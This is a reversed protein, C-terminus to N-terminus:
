SRGVQTLDHFFRKYEGEFVGGKLRIFSIDHFVSFGELEVKRLTGAELEQAVVAEYLFSIGLDRKLFAKIVNLSEVESVQNFVGIGLNRATLAHELVARTGSGPERVLLYEDVLDEIRHPERAFTHNPACVCVLRESAFVDWAYSSKDFFGEVFACDITGSDLSDLLEETRGSRIAPRIEPHTALYNALPAAVVYEGATLTMGLSLRIQSVQTADVMRECLTAEDHAMVILVSRLMEGAPTLALKKNCYSFLPVGYVKEFYAIHQSVAPQTINLIEAARTYNMTHCVTLFTEVRFDQM